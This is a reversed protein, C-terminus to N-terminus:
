LEEDDDDWTTAPFETDLTEFDPRDVKPTALAAGRREASKELETNVDGIFGRGEPTLTGSYITALRLLALRVGLDVAYTDTGDVSSGLFEQVRAAAHAAAKNSLTTDESSDSDRVNTLDIMTASAVLIRLDTAIQVALTAM